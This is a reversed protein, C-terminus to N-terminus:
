LSLGFLEEFTGCLIRRNEEETLSLGLFRALEEEHGWMPFDTGFMMRNVGFHRILAAAESNELKWLSSSTDFYLNECRLYKAAEDWRQYGGLHAAICTLGSIQQMVNSLRLPSSFDYRKDGMHFLIPLGADRIKRYVPLMKPEDINFQQFDPHFKVGRLGLGVAHEIESEWDTQAPHLAAFGLFKPYQACKEAIFSNIAGAQEAKTAVSCVLYKLVGIKEGSEILSHPYGINTMPAGYFEGVSATAKEAIKAPYIHTHADAIKYSAGNKTESM